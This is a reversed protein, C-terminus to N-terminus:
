ARDARMRRVIKAVIPTAALTAPARIVITSKYALYAIAATGLTTSAAIKDPELGIRDCLM